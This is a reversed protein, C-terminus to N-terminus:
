IGEKPILTRETNIPLGMSELVIKAFKIEEETFVEPYRVIIGSKWPRIIYSELMAKKMRMEPLSYLAESMRMIDIPLSNEIHFREGVLGVHTAKEISLVFNRMEKQAWETLVRMEKSKTM